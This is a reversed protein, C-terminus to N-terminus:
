ILGQIACTMQTSSLEFRFALKLHPTVCLLTYPGKKESLRCHKACWMQFNKLPNQHWLKSLCVDDLDNKLVNSCQWMPPYLYATAQVFHEAVLITAVCGSSADLNVLFSVWRGGEKYAHERYVDRSKIVQLHINGFTKLLDDRLHHVVRRVVQKKRKLTSHGVQPAACQAQIIRILKEM